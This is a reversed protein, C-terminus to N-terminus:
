HYNTIQVAVMGQEPISPPAVVEGLVLAVLGLQHLILNPVPLVLALAM